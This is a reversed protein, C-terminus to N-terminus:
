LVHCPLTNMVAATELSVGLNSVTAVGANVRGRISTRVVVDVSRGDMCNMYSSAHVCTATNTDAFAWVKCGPRSNTGLQVKLQVKLSFRM